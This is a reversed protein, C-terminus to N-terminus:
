SSMGNAIEEMGESSLSIDFASQEPERKNNSMEVRVVLNLFIIVIYSFNIM